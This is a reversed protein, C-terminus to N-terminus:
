RYPAFEDRRPRRVVTLTVFGIAFAMPLNPEPVAAFGILQPDISGSSTIRVGGVDSLQGATIGFDALLITGGNIAVIGDSPVGGIVQDVEAVAVQFGWDGSLLTASSGILQDATDLLQFTTNGTTGIEFAFLVDSLSTPATSVQYNAGSAVDIAGTDLRIDSMAASGDAPEPSGSWYKGDDAQTNANSLILNKYTVGDSTFATLFATDTITTNSSQTSTFSGGGSSYTISTVLGANSPSSLLLILAVVSTCSRVNPQLGHLSM